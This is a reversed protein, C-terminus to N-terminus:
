QPNITDTEFEHLATTQPFRQAEIVVERLSCSLRMSRAAELRVGLEARGEVGAIAGSGAGAGVAAVLIAALVTSAQGAAPM